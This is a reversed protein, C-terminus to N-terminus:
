DPFGVYVYMYRIIGKYAEVRNYHDHCVIILMYIDNVLIYSCYMTSIIM